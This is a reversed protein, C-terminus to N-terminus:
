SIQSYPKTHWTGWTPFFNWIPSALSMWSASL